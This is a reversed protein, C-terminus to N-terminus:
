VVSSNALTFPSQEEFIVLSLDTKQVSNNHIKVFNLTNKQRIKTETKYM